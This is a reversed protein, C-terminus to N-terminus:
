CRALVVLNHAFITAGVTSCYHEFGKAFCRALRLVRKLFSISGEVGARFRQAERFEPSHERATEEETRKGKKGIAVTKVKQELREVAEREYYGKDASFTDPYKGFVDKHNEAAPDLLKHEVPKKRFVGYDTIFKEPSQQIQVMHGYEINRRAKGRKLLETHPEFISFIKEENPVQEGQFIRRQAQDVVQAGLLRYNEIEEALGRAAADGCPGAVKDARNRLNVAVSQSWAMIGNVRSILDEYPDKLSEASNNRGATRNIKTFLKKTSRNHVRKDGVSERDLKRAQKIFRALVRYVDWLLSSDTPYHINTEVATTDIRTAEGSIKEGEASSKALVRNIRKWTEDRIANKLHCLTSYNMMPGDHIGVFERFFDTTDIRITTERLSWGEAFMLVLVRLVMSTTFKCRRGEADRASAHKLPKELDQHVADVIEPTQDLISSIAQYKQYYQNTEKLNSEQFFKFRCQAESKSRM